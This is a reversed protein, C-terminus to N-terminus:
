KIFSSLTCSVTEILLSMTRELRTTPITQQKTLKHEYDACRPQEGIKELMDNDLTTYGIRIPKWRPRGKVEQTVVTGQLRRVYSSTGNVDIDFLHGRALNDEGAVLIGWHHLAPMGEFLSWFSKPKAMRITDLDAVTFHETNSRNPETNDPDGVHKELLRHALFITRFQTSPIDQSQESETEIGKDLSSTHSRQWEHKGGQGHGTDVITFSPVSLQSTHECVNV